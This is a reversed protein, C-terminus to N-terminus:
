KLLIELATEGFLMGNRYLAAGGKRRWMGPPLRYLNGAGRGRSVHEDSFGDHTKDGMDITQIIAKEFLYVCNKWDHNAWSLRVPLKRAGGRRKAGPGPKGSWTRPNAYAFGAPKGSWDRARAWRSLQATFGPGCDMGGGGPTTELSRRRLLLAGA